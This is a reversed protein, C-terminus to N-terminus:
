KTPKKNSTKISKWNSVIRDYAVYTAFSQLIAIDLKQANFLNAGNLSATTIIILLFFYVVFILLRINSQNTYKNSLLILKEKDYPTMLIHYWKVFYDSFQYTIIVSITIILYMQAQYSFNYKTIEPIIDIVIVGLISLIIGLSMLRALFVQGIDVLSFVINLPFRLIDRIIKILKYRDFLSLFYVLASDLAMLSLAISIIGKGGLFYFLASLGLLIIIVALQSFLTPNSKKIDQRAENFIKMNSRTVSKM